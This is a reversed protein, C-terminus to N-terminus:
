KLLEKNESDWPITFGAAKAHGGGGFTKAIDAVNIGLVDSRLSFKRGDPTDFYCGAFAADKGLIDGADSAMTIPLNAIKVKHGCIWFERTVIPLLNAIDRHHKREIGVGELYLDHLRSESMLGAWIEFDYPYSFLAAVIERTHPLKFKWLDRDQIHELLWPPPVNPNFWEWTLMAGSKDMDFIGSITKDVLLPVLDAKATEHHDIVTVTDAVAVIRELVPRKYSFDVLFVNRDTCDPPEKQYVGPYFEWNQASAAAGHSQWVAWAAGFGDVCNGHYICLNKPKNM